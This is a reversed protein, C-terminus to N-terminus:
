WRLNSGLEWPQNAKENQSLSRDKRFRLKRLKALLGAKRPHHISHDQHRHCLPTENHWPISLPPWLLYYRPKELSSPLSTGPIVQYGEPCWWPYKGANRIWSMAWLGRLPPHSLCFAWRGFRWLSWEQSPAEQQLSFFSAAFNMTIRVSNVNQM